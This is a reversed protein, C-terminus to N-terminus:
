DDEDTKWRRAYIGDKIGFWADYEFPRRESKSCYDYSQRFIAYGGLDKDYLCKSGVNIDENSGVFKEGDVYKRIRGDNLYVCKDMWYACDICHVFDVKATREARRNWAEIVDHEDAAYSDVTFYADCNECYILTDRFYSTEIHAADEGCFPCPKLKESM